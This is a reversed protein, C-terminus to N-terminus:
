LTSMFIYWFIGENMAMMDMLQLAEDNMLSTLIGETTQNNM